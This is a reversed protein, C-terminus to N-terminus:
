FRDKARQLILKQDVNDGSYVVIDYDSYKESIASVAEWLVREGGGGADCYPHFFAVCKQRKRVTRIYILLAVVITLVFIMVRRKDTLCDFDSEFIPHTGM